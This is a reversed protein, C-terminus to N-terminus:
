AGSVTDKSLDVNYENTPRSLFLRAEKHHPSLRSDIYQAVRDRVMCSTRELADAACCSVM